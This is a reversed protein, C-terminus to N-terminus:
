AVTLRPATMDDDGDEVTLAIVWEGGPPRYGDPLRMGATVGAAIRAALQSKGTKGPGALLTFMTRPIRGPWIWEVRRLRITDARTMGLEEEAFERRPPAPAPAAVAPRAHGNTAARGNTAPAPAPEDGDVRKSGHQDPHNRYVDGVKKRLGKAS